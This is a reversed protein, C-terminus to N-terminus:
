KVAVMRLLVRSLENVVKDNMLPEVLCLNLREKVPLMERQKNDITM